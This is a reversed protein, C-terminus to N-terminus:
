PGGLFDAAILELARWNDEIEGDEKAKSIAQDLVEAAAMPLRYVREVWKENTGGTKLAKRKEEIAAWDVTQKGVLADFQARSFPLVDRLQAESRRQLLSQVLTTLRGQDPRGRTENLVITLQEADADEMLGLSWCPFITIGLDHGERWRNEGDIIQFRPEFEEGPLERVTIPDVFGFQIISAREKARMAEDMVNPNWPNPEIRGYPVQILRGQVEAAVVASQTM